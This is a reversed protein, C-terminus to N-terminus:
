QVRKVDRRCGRLLDTGILSNTGSIGDAPGSMHIEIVINEQNGIIILRGSGGGVQAAITGSFAATPISLATSLGPVNGILPLPVNIPTTPEATSWEYLKNGSSLILNSNPTGICSIVSDVSRGVFTEEAWIADAAGNFYISHDKSSYIHCGPLFLLVLFLSYKM